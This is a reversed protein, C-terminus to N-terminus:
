YIDVGRTDGERQATGFLKYIVPTAPKHIRIECAKWVILSFLQLASSHPLGDFVIHAASVRM